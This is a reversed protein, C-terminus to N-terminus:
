RAQRDFWCGFLRCKVVTTGALITNSAGGMGRFLALRNAQPMAEAAQVHQTFHEVPMHSIVSVTM